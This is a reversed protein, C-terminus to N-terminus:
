SSQSLKKVRKGRLGVLPIIFAIAYVIGFVLPDRDVFFLNSYQADVFSFILFGGILAIYPILIYTFFHHHGTFLHDIDSLIIKFLLGFLVGLLLLLAYIGPNPFLVLTPAVLLVTVINGIVFLSFIIWPLVSDIFRHSNTKPTKGMVTHAYRLEDESWGKKRMQEVLHVHHQVM